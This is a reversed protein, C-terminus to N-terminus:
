CRVIISNAAVRTKKGNLLEHRLFKYSNYQSVAAVILTRRIMHAYKCVKKRAQSGVFGPM